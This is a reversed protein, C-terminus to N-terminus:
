WSYGFRAEKALCPVQQAQQAKVGCPMYDSVPVAQSPAFAGAIRVHQAHSADPGSRPMRGLFGFGDFTTRMQSLYDKQQRQGFCGFRELHRVVHAYCDSGSSFLARRTCRACTQCHSDLHAKCHGPRDLWGDPIDGKYVYHRSYWDDFPHWCRAKPSPPPADTKEVCLSM